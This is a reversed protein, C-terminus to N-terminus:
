QPENTLGDACLEAEVVRKYSNGYPSSDRGFDIGGLANVIRGDANYMLCQWLEWPKKSGDFDSSDCCPDVSWAFTFGANRAAREDTALERACRIRGQMATETKPDHSYGAHKLFFQYANMAHNREIVADIMPEVSATIPHRNNQRGAARELYM